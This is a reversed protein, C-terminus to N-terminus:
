VRASCFTWSASWVVVRGWRSGDFHRESVACRMRVFEGVTRVVVGVARGMTARGCALEAAIATVKELLRGHLSEDVSLTGASMGPLELALTVILRGALSQLHAPLAPCRLVRAVCDLVLVLAKGDEATPLLVESGVAFLEEGEYAKRKKGTGTEQVPTSRPAVIRALHPLLARTARSLLISNDTPYAHDSLCIFAQLVHTKQASRQAHIPAPLFRSPCFM